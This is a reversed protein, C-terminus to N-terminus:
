GLRVALVNQLSRVDEPTLLIRDGPAFRTIARCRGANAATAVGAHHIVDNRLHRLDGIVDCQVSAVDLGHARAFEPRYHSEWRAFILAIWADTLWQQLWGNHDAASRLDSLRWSADPRTSPDNPNGAGLFLNPDPNSPSAKMPVCNLLQTVAVRSFTMVGASRWFEQAFEDM